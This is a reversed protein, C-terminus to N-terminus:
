GGDSEGSVEEDEYEPAMRVQADQGAWFRTVLDILITGAGETLFVNSGVTCVVMSTPVAM